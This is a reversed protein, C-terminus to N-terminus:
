KTSLRGLLRETKSLSLTERDLQKIFVNIVKEDFPELSSEILMEKSATLLAENSLAPKALLLTLISQYRLRTESLHASLVQLCSVEISEILEGDFRILENSQLALLQATVRDSLPINSPTLFYEAEVFVYLDDVLEILQDFKIKPSDKMLTLIAYSVLSPLAFVHVVTNRYYTLHTSQKYDCSVVHNSESFKNMALAQQYIVEPDGKPYTVGSDASIGVLLSQHLTLLTLIRQKGLQYNESALLIAACLPLANVATVNNIGQLVNNALHNVQNVLQAETLSQEKWQPQHLELYKKINIPEGFNVFARGFNRLKKVIGLVQWASEKEKKQGSLEKMYTSVEMIHDYGIYVPVIMVNREPQDLFTRMSMALLGTKAPLLRGTRSRGGETFFEIPYGQKFLMAFYAKFVKGYLPNDKFSRRLFFAGSRRFIGGAPFFNLNVGAAVHPPVLGESFLLYSLLLYDMHSRHCPM